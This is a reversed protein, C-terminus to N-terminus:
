SIWSLCLLFFLAYNKDLQLNRIKSSKNYGITGCVACQACGGCGEPSM